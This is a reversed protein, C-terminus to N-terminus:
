WPCNTTRGCMWCTCTCWIQLRQSLCNRLHM